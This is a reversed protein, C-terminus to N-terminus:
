HKNVLGGTSFSKIYFFSITNVTMKRLFDIRQLLINVYPSDKIHHLMCYSFLNLEISVVDDSCLCSDKGKKDQEIEHKSNMSRDNYASMCHPLGAELKRLERRLKSNNRQLIYDKKELECYERHLELTMLQLEATKEQLKKVKKNLEASRKHLEKSMEQKLATNRRTMKAMKRQLEETKLKLQEKM